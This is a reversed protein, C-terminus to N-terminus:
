TTGETANFIAARILALEYDRDGPFSDVPVTELLSLALRLAALMDPAAAILAADYRHRARTVTETGHLVDRGNLSVAWPRPTHASM